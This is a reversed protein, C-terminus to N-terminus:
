GCLLENSFRDPELGARGTQTPASSQASPLARHACWVRYSRPGSGVGLVGCPGAPGAPSAGRSGSRLAKLLVGRFRPQQPRPSVRRRRDLQVPWRTEADRRRARPPPGHAGHAEQGLRSAPRANWCLDGSARSGAPAGGRRAGPGWTVCWPIVSQPSSVQGASAAPTTAALQGRGNGETDRSVPCNCRQGPLM